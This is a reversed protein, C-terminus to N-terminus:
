EGRPGVSRLHKRKLWNKKQADRRGVWSKGGYWGERKGNVAMVSGTKGQGRCELFDKYTEPHLRKMGVYQTSSEM